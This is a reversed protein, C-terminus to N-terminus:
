SRMFKTTQSFVEPPTSSTQLQVKVSHGLRTPNRHGQPFTGETTFVSPPHLFLYFLAPNARRMLLPHHFPEQGAQSSCPTLLQWLHTNIHTCPHSEPQSLPLVSQSEFPTPHKGVPTAEPAMGSKPINHPVPPSPPRPPLPWGM